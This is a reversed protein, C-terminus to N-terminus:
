RRPPRGLTEALNEPSLAVLTRCDAYYRAELMASNALRVIFAPQRSLAGGAIAEAFTRETTLLAIVEGPGGDARRAALMDPLMNRLAVPDVPLAAFVLNEILEMSGTEPDPRDTQLSWARYGMGHLEALTRRLLPETYTARLDIAEAEPEGHGRLAATEGDEGCIAAFWQRGAFLVPATPGPISQLDAGALEPLESLATGLLRELLIPGGSAAFPPSRGVGHVRHASRGNGGPAELFPRYTTEDFGLILDGGNWDAGPLADFDYVALGMDLTMRKPAGANEQFFTVRGGPPVYGLFGSRIRCEGGNNVTVITPWVIELGTANCLSVRLDAAGGDPAAAHAVGAAFALAVFLARIRTHM